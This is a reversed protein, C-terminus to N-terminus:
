KVATDQSAIYQTSDALALVIWFFRVYSFHLFLGTALYSVIALLFSDSIKAIEVGGHQRTHLLQRISTGVIGLFAFTGVLGVEALLELYLCHAKRNGELARYGGIMGYQRTFRQSLDPGVGLIPNDLWINAAAMMETVRGRIAGDPEEVVTGKTKLIGLASPITALRTRYQPVALLVILGAMTVGLLQKPKVYGMCAAVAVMLVLGITSGRSFTFVFALIIFVSAIGALVRVSSQRTGLTMVGLPVLMLLTQAYRNKEGVPGALRRQRVQGRGSEVKFGEGDSVQAFGGYNNEFTNTAQQWVSISGMFAGAALMAWIARRLTASSRIVNTIVLYIILGETLSTKVTSMSEDPMMSFSASVFQVVVFGLVWPLTRTLIIPERKILVDYALPLVMPFLVLMALVSPVGHFRVAVAPVNAYMLFLTMLIAADRFRLMLASIPVVAMLALAVLPQELVLAGTAVIGALAIGFWIFPRSIEVDISPAESRPQM